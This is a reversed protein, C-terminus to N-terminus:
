PLTRDPASTKAQDEGGGAQSVASPTLIGILGGAITALIAAFGDPMRIGLFIMITWAVVGVLLYLALSGVILAYLWNPTGAPQKSRQM